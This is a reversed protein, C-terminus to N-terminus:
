NNWFEPAFGCARREADVKIGVSSLLKDCPETLFDQYSGEIKIKIIRQQSMSGPLFTDTTKLYAINEPYFDHEPINFLQKSDIALNEQTLLSISFMSVTQLIIIARKITISFM